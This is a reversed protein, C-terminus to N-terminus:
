MSALPHNTIEVGHAAAGGELLWANCDSDPDCVSGDGPDARCGSDDCLSDPKSGWMPRDNECNDMATLRGALVNCLSATRGGLDVEGQKADEMRVFARIRAQSVDWLSSAFRGICSRGESLTVSQLELGLLPLELQVDMGDETLIPVTLVQNLAATSFTEGTFTAEVSVPDWRNADGPSPADGEAFRFTGDDARVGYGTRVMTAGGDGAELAVLWNFTEKTFANRLLQAILPNALSAPRELRLATLRLEANDPDTSNDKRHCCPGDQLGDPNPVVARLPACDVPASGDTGGDGDGDGGGGDGGDATAPADRGADTGGGGGGDDGCGAGLLGVMLPFAIWHKM